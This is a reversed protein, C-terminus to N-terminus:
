RVSPMPGRHSPSVRTVAAEVVNAVGAEGAANPHVPLALSGPVIPEIWRVSEPTCANHPESPGYTDVFTVKQAAAVSALMGNLQLEKLRLYPVDTVTLPMQPWCGLGDAPLIAPYGILFVRAAPARAHVRALTASLRPRLARIEAAIVDHGSPDYYSKCNTGVRTPGWPTAAICNEVIGTFNIDNGGIGVTVVRDNSAVAALQAPSSGADTVQGGTMDALRAGSCSVDTLTFGLAAAALHPYDHDSRFCGPGGHIQNPILPGSTYSDGLSAWVPPPVAARAARAVGAGVLLLAAIEGALFLRVWTSRLVPM